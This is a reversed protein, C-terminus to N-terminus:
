EDAMIAYPDDAVLAATGEDRFWALLERLHVVAGVVVVAPARVGAEAARLANAMAGDGVSFEVLVDARGALSGVETHPQVSVGLPSLGALVGADQGVGRERGFAAVLQLDAQACVARVVARGMRGAAGSVAVRVTEAM